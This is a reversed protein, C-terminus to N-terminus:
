FSMMDVWGYFLNFQFNGFDLFVICVFKVIYNQEFINMGVWGCILDVVIVCKVVVQEFFKSQIGFGVVFFEVCFDLCVNILM